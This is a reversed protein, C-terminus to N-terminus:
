LSFERGGFCYGMNVLLVTAKYFVRTSLGRSTSTGGRSVIRGVEERARVGDRHGRLDVGQGVKSAPSVGLVAWNREVNRIAYLDLVGGPLALLEDPRAVRPM